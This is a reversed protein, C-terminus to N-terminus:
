RPFSGRPSARAASQQLRDAVEVYGGFEAMLVVAAIALSRPIPLVPRVVDRINERVGNAIPPPVAVEDELVELRMRAQVAPLRVRQDQLEVMYPLFCGEDRAQTRGRSPQLAEDCLDTPALHAADIAVHSASRSLEPPPFPSLALSPSINWSRCRSAAQLTEAVCRGDIPDRSWRDQMRADKDAPM